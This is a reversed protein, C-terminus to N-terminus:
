KGSVWVAACPRPNRSGKWLALMIPYYLWEGRLKMDRYGGLRPVLPEERTHGEHALSAVKRPHRGMLWPSSTCPLSSFFAVRFFCTPSAIGWRRQLSLCGTMDGRRASAAALLQWLLTEVRRKRKAGDRFDNPFLVHRGVIVISILSNGGKNFLLPGRGSLSQGHGKSWSSPNRSSSRRGKPKGFAERGTGVPQPKKGGHGIHIPCCRRWGRRMRVTIPRAGKACLAGYAARSAVPHRGTGGDGDRSQLSM